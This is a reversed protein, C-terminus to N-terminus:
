LIMGSLVQAALFLGLASLVPAAKAAPGTSIRDTMSTFLVTTVTFVIGGTLGLKLAEMAGVFCAAWPLLGFTVGGLLAVCVWCRKADAVVYAEAVLAVLSVLVMNPVNLEPLIIQPAFTRVFVCVLLILGFVAALLTNLIDNKNKM